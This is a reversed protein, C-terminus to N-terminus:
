QKLIREVEQIKKQIDQNNLIEKEMKKCAHLVTTHDKGGFAKGIEPLSLTTLKRTLYMATQKALVINKYRKRSKLDELPVHFFTSAEEQVMEVSITKVTERVMDKLIIKALDLTIPKDELLSYASVRILAGELERINTKIQEAIFYIVDDPVKTPEHEMKKRLIAARTEFDPPQIDTILGWAFRSILREELNSIEKPPRDSTIIIQKHSNHLNNFTHFFEEQTSEKGAIFQIDDILLVDIQRYKKRFKDTSRHRIAEILENTFQESSMYCIKSTPHIQHIKHTISQLLHTKGLGVQGYIFLPNYAKAPSEAVALSAACAFRNSSGIVFNDFTFRANLQSQKKDVDKFEQEFKTLRHQTKKNLINKNVAFEIQITQQSLNGLTEQLLKEYHEVIWNKFFEDPSEILLTKPNKERIHLTSFWTEYSTEGIKEKIQPQANNWITILDM